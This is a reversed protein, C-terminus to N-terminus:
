SFRFSPIHILVPKKAFRNIYPKKPLRRGYKFAQHFSKYVSLMLCILSNIKDSMQYNRHLKMSSFLFDIQFGTALSISSTKPKLVLFQIELKRNVDRDSVYACFM